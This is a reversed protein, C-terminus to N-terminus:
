DVLPEVDGNLGFATLRVNLHHNTIFIFLQIFDYFTLM